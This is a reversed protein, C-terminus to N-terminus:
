KAGCGDAVHEVTVDRDHVVVPVEVAAHLAVHEDGREVDGVHGTAPDAADQEDVVEVGLPVAPVIEDM